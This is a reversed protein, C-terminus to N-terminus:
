RKYTETSHATLGIIYAPRTQTQQEYERILKASQYGDMVPMAIDM